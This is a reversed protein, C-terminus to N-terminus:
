FEIQEVTCSLQFRKMELGPIARCAAWITPSAGACLLIGRSRREGALNAQVWGMYRAIQGVASDSAWGSKIEIVVLSCTSDQCLLDIFGVDTPFEILQYDPHPKLGAEILELNRALFQQLDRELVGMVPPAGLQVGAEPEIEEGARDIEIWNQSAALVQQVRQFKEASLEEVTHRALPRTLGSEVPVLAAMGEPPMGQVEWTVEVRRGLEPEDPNRRYKGRPVTPKWQADAVLVREIIGVPGVRSHLLFPIVKDGPSMQGLRDRVWGWGVNDTPGTMSYKPPPWGVAVCKEGFWTHWVGPADPEPCIVIWYRGTM